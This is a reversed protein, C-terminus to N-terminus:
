PYREEAHTGEGGGLEIVRKGKEERDGRGGRGEEGGVRGEIGVWPIFSVKRRGTDWGERDM